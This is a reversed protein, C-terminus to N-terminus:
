QLFNKQALFNYFGSDENQPNPPSEEFAYIEIFEQQNSL